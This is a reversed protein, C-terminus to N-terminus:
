QFGVWFGDANRGTIEIKIDANEMNNQVKEYDDKSIIIWISYRTNEGKEFGVTYFSPNIYGEKQAFIGIKEGDCNFDSVGKFKIYFMTEENPNTIKTNIFCVAYDDPHELMAKYEDSSVDFATDEEPNKITNDYELLNDYLKEIGLVSCDLNEEAIPLISYIDSWYLFILIPVSIILIVATIILIKKRKM